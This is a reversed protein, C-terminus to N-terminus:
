KDTIVVDHWLKQVFELAESLKDQDKLTWAYGNKVTSDAQKIIKLANEIKM